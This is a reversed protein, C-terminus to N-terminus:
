GRCVTGSLEREPSNARGCELRAGLDSRREREGAVSGGHEIFDLRDLVYLPLYWNSGSETKWLTREDHPRALEELVELLRLLVPLPEGCGCLGLEHMAREVVAHTSELADRFCVDDDPRTM